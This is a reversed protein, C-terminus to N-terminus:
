WHSTCKLCKDPPESLLLDAQLTLSWTRDRPQSSGRSFSIPVWELIRSHLIGHVSSGPLSYNMPNCDSVISYSVIESECKHMKISLLLRTPQLRHPRQLTLCQQTVESERMPSPFPLGSWHEQRSFVLSQPAQHAAMEPTACLRVRSFCCCCCCIHCSKKKRFNTTQKQGLSLMLIYVITKTSQNQFISMTIVLLIENFLISILLAM